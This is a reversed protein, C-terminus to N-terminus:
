ALRSAGLRSHDGRIEDFLDFMTQKFMFFDFRAAEIKEDKDLEAVSKKLLRARSSGSAKKVFTSAQNADNMYSARMGTAPKTNGKRVDDVM